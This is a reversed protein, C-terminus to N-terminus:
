FDFPIYRSPYKKQPQYFAFGESQPLFSVLLALFLTPLTYQSRHSIFATWKRLRQKLSLRVVLDPQTTFQAVRSDLLQDKILGIPAVFCLQTKSKKLLKILYLSLAIHDPHGTVGSPDYTFVLDFHRVYETVVPQWIRTQRLKGDPFNFIEFDTVGLRTVARTFEGKRIQGLSLGHGHIHIKGQDGSTLCVLTVKSGLSHLKQILGGTMVTEDDPHPFIVLVKKNKFNSINSNVM